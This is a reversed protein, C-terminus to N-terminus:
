IFSMSINSFLNVRELSCCCVSLSLCSSSLLLFSNSSIVSFLNFPNMVRDVACIISCFSFFLLYNAPRSFFFASDLIM